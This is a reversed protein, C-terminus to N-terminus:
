SSIIRIFGAVVLGIVLMTGFRAHLRISNLPFPTLQSKQRIDNIDNKTNHMDRVSKIAWPFSIMVIAIPWFNHRIIVVAAVVLYPVWTLFYYLIKTRSIGLLMPLTLIGAAKDDPIDRLNNVLSISSILMGLAVSILFVGWDWVRTQVYYSGMVIVPGVLIGLMLAGQAWYKYSIPRGTYFFAGMLGTVGFLLLKWGVVQLLVLGIIATVMFCGFAALLIMEPEVRERALAGLHSSLAKSSDVGNKFDFYDAAANAGAHASIAGILSLLLWLLNFRGQAFAAFGGALVPLASLPLTVLRFAQYWFTLKSTTPRVGDEVKVWGNLRREYTEEKTTLRYPEVIITADKLNTKYSVTAMGNGQLTRTSDTITFAIRKQSSLNELTTTDSCVMQITESSSMLECETTWLRAGQSALIVKADKEFKDSFPWLDPLNSM